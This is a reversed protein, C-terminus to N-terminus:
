VVAALLPQSTASSLVVHSDFIGNSGLPALENVHVFAAHVERAGLVRAHAATEVLAVLTTEVVALLLVREGRIEDTWGRVRLGGQAVVVASGALRNAAEGIPWILPSGLELSRNVLARCLSEVLPFRLAEENRKHAAVLDVLLPGASVPDVL